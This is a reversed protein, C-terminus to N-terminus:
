ICLSIMRCQPRYQTRRRKRYRDQIEREDDAVIRKNKYTGIEIQQTVEKNFETGNRISIHNELEHANRFDCNTVPQTKPKTAANTATTAHYNANRQRESINIDLMLETPHKTGANTVIHHRGWDRKGSESEEDNKSIM